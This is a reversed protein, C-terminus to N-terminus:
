ERLRLHIAPPPLTAHRSSAIGHVLGGGRIERTARVVVLTALRNADGDLFDRLEEGRIGFSGSQIGRPVTFRGLERVRAKEMRDGSSPDNAPAKSWDLLAPDWDDLDDDALGYVVFEADELLSALGWGTPTFRLELRAEGIKGPKLAPLPFRLWAKRHPAREGLGNKVLLLSDSIHDTPQGAWAYSDAGGVDATTVTLSTGARPLTPAEPRAWTGEEPGESVGGLSSGAVLTRQGERLEIRERSGPLEVEVLGDFVQTQTAGDAPDVSVAFRTGYDVVRARPTAVVFGKASEEVEAVATGRELVCNMGDVLVLAAPAELVLEAGADFALTALGRALELRGPGLRAGEATPLTGSGWRASETKALTAFARDGTAGPRSTAVLALLAVLAAAACAQWLTPLRRFRAAPIEAIEADGSGHEGVRDWHLVAHDHLFDLYIRRAEANSSLIGELEAGDEASLSSEIYAHALELLRDTETENM